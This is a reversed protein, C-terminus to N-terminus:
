LVNITLIKKGFQRAHSHNEFWIDIIHQGNYRSNMRDEVTFIKDGYLDPIMVKTGIPLFNAAIVGDYVFAGSATIFPTDDTQSEESSYATAWVTLENKIEATTKKTKVVAKEVVSDSLQNVTETARSKVAYLADFGTANNSQISTIQGITSSILTTAFAFSLALRKGM